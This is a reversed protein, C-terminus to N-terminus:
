ADTDEWIETNFMNTLTTMDGNKILKKIKEENKEIYNDFIEEAERDLDNIFNEWTYEKEDMKTDVSDVKTNLNINKKLVSLDSKIDKINDDDEKYRDFRDAQKESASTM